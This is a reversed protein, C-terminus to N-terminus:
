DAWVGSQNIKIETMQLCPNSLYSKRNRSIVSHIARNLIYTIAMARILSYFFSYSRIGKKHKEKEEGGSFATKGESIHPASMCSCMVAECQGVQPVLQILQATCRISKGRKSTLTHITTCDVANKVDLDTCRLDNEM